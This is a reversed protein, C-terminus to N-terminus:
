PFAVNEYCAITFELHERLNNMAREGRIDHVNELYERRMRHTNQRRIGVTNEVIQNRLPDVGFSIFRCFHVGRLIRTKKLHSM